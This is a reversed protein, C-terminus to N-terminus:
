IAHAKTRSRAGASCRRASKQSRCCTRSGHARGTARAVGGPLQRAVSRSSPISRSCSVAAAPLTLWSEVTTSVPGEGCRQRRTPQQGSPPRGRGSSRCCHTSKLRDGPRTRTALNRRYWVTRDEGRYPHPYSALRQDGRGRHSGPEVAGITASPWRALGRRRYGFARNIVYCEAQRQGFALQLNIVQQRALDPDREL